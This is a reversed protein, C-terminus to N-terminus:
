IITFLRVVFLLLLLLVNGCSVLSVVVEEEISDIPVLWERERAM